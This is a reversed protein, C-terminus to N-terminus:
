ATAARAVHYRALWANVRAVDHARREAKRREVQAFHYRAAETFRERREAQRREVYDAKMQELHTM